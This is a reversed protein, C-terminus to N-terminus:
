LSKSWAPDTESVPEPNTTVRLMRGGQASMYYLKPVETKRASFIIQQGNPAWDPKECDFKGHTLQQAHKTPLHYKYIQFYVETVGEYLIWERQSVM